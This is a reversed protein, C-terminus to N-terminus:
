IGRGKNKKTSCNLDIEKPVNNKYLITAWHENRVYVNIVGIFNSSQQRQWYDILCIFNGLDFVHADYDLIGELILVMPLHQM